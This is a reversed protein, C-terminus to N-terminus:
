AAKKSTPSDYLAQLEALREPDSKDLDARLAMGKAWVADREAETAAAKLAAAFAETREALTPKSIQKPPAAKAGTFAREAIAFLKPKESDKIKYSKGFPEIEVWPSDLHYLYRGIGWRVASRKFADSLAGKEAEMDTDGAGDAKTVWGRGEVWVDIECVTKDGAHPYRDQWGDPGVVDDLRDMADRADIFALAIGKTKEKNTPGVRWSVQEPPFPARLREFMDPQSM